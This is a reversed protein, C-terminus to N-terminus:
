NCSMRFQNHCLPLPDSLVSARFSVVFPNTAHNIVGIYNKLFIKLINQLIERARHIILQQQDKSNILIILQLELQWSGDGDVM